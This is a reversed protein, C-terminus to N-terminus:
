SNTKLIFYFAASWLSVAPRFCDIISNSLMLTAWSLCPVTSDISNGTQARTHTSSSSHGAPVVANKEKMQFSFIFTDPVAVVWHHANDINDFAAVCCVCLRCVVCMFVMWEPWLWVDDDDGNELFPLINIFKLIKGIWYTKTCINTKNVKQQQHQNSPQQQHQVSSHNNRNEMMMLMMMRQRVNMEWALHHAAMPHLVFESESQIQQVM